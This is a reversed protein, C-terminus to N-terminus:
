SKLFREMATRLKDYQVSEQTTTDVKLIDGSVSLPSMDWNRIVKKFEELNEADLHGPHRGSKSRKEFRQIAIDVSTSCHLQVFRARYKQQLNTFHESDFSSRFNAEVICTTGAQLLSELWLYLLRFSAKGIARSWERDKWGLTDFLSEKITDKSIFPIRLDRALHAALTTKGVGAHGLVIICSPQQMFYIRGNETCLSCSM